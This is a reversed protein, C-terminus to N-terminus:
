ATVAIQEPGGEAIAARIREAIELAALGAKGDVASPAGTAISTLFADIEAGLNDRPVLTVPVPVAGPVRRSTMTLTPGSLDAAYVTNPETITLRREGEGAVRSASLTAIAGNAFTLWAESEDTAGSAGVSGSAAVSAVPAGALMLVLDIDHIMLDLVVDVDISRGTWKTKRRATLRRPNAVRQRLEAVAPSFREVHGVQLVVGHREAAVVLGRADAVDTAIPKEVLVHIGADVFDRAVAAHHTAPVAISVADVKGILDRHDAFVPAGQGNAAGQAADQDAVAVLTAKPNNAYHKAHHRGFSGLGVVGVKISGDTLGM